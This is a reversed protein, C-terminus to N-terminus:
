FNRSAAWASCSLMIDHSRFPFVNWKNHLFYEHTFVARAKKRKILAESICPGRVPFTIIKFNSDNLRLM